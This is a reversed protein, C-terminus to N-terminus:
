HRGDQCEPSLCGMFLWFRTWLGAQRLIIDPRSPSSTTAATYDGVAPTTSPQTQTSTGFQQTVNPQPSQSSSTTPIKPPLLIKRRERACANRRQGPACPVEVVAPSRGQLETGESSPRRPKLLNRAWTSHLPYHRITTVLPTATSCAPLFRAEHQPILVIQHSEM